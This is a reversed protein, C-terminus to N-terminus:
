PRARCHQERAERILRLTSDADLTTARGGRALQGFIQEVEDYRGCADAKRGAAVEVDGLMALSMAYDRLRMTETPHERWLARREAVGEKLLEAARAPQGLAALAQAEADLVIRHMRAADADALDSAAIARTEQEGLHLLDYAERPRELSLLTTGLAWRSRALRRSIAPDGPWRRAAAALIEMQRRYPAEAQAKRDDYYISEALLDYLSAEILRADRPKDAAPAALGAQAAAISERYRGQWQRLAALQQFYRAGLGDPATQPTAILRHADALLQEANPLDNDVMTAISAQDLRVRAALRAGDQGPLGAALAYARRLNAKAAVPQGLNPAGPKGQREALRILGEVSERTLEPSRRSGALRDLYGQSVRAVETRLPLSQPQRELRDSLDFLLYRAVGHLDDFRRTAEARATEAAFYNATAVGAVGALALMAGATAGVGLRHRTLFKGTRYRFGDPRAAVPYGRKWRDLDALLAAVSGYRAQPEDARAKAAIATIDADRSAGVLERLLVGLSFVDDAVGPPAGARRAPSAYGETMPTPRPTEEEEALLRAIGFDLLKVRGQADVLINSPKLDAHVILREHSFQVADAAQAFLAARAALGLPVAALDIPAGDVYEMVLYAAGDETVGGDILRAVNPHELQALIQRERVFHSAALPALHAHLLKVAVRQEYLGDDRVARWVQGMGGEGIQELLRFPGVRDPAESPPAAMVSAVTPLARRGAEASRELAEIRQVVAEPERGLLRRRFRLDGPRESLREYLRLARREVEPRSPDM